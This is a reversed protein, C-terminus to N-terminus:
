LRDKIPVLNTVVAVPNWPCPVPIVSSIPPPPPSIPAEDAPGKGVNLPFGILVDDRM